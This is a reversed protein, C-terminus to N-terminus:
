TPILAVVLDAGTITELHPQQSGTGSARLSDAM